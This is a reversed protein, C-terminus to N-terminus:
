AAIAVKDDDNSPTPLGRGALHDRWAKMVIRVRSDADLPMRRKNVNRLRSGAAGVADDLDGALLALRFAEVKDADEQIFRYALGSATGKAFMGAKYLTEGACVAKGVEDGRAAAVADTLTLSVDRLQADAIVCRARCNARHTVGAAKLMTEVESVTPRVTPTAATVATVASRTTRVTKARGPHELSIREAVKEDIRLKRLREEVRRDVEARERAEEADAVKQEYEDCFTKTAPTVVRRSQDRDGVQTELAPVKLLYPVFPDDTMPFFWYDGQMISALGVDELNRHQYLVDEMDVHKGVSRIASGTVRTVVTQDTGRAFELPYESPANAAMLMRAGLDFARGLFSNIQQVADADLGMRRKPTVVHTLDIALTTPAVLQHQISLHAAIREVIRAAPGPELGGVDIAFSHPSAVIMAALVDAQSPDITFTANARTLDVVTVPGTALGAYSDNFAVAIVKKGTKLDHEILAKLIISPRADNNGFISTHAKQNMQAIALELGLTNLPTIVNGRFTKAM